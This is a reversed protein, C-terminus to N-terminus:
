PHFADAGHLERLMKRYSIAAADPFRIHLEEKIDTPIEEPRQTEVVVRDQEMITDFGSTFREDPVDLSHNRATYVYIKTTKATVPTSLFSLLTVDGLQSNAGESWTGGKGTAIVSKRDHVIFPFDLEYDRRLRTDDYVYRLGRPTRHVEYPKIVPGDALETYGMHVFNFHSFDMANEVVRGASTKWFYQNVYCVRFDPRNWADEPWEPFPQVPEALAVWVLGYAERAPYAIARAKQPISAGEPLSPIHVCAGTRDYTWGHYACVIKGDRVTGGSLAAGRHICLDKFAAVGSEDRFVVLKEDLLVFQRPQATVEDSTAVPHWFNALSLVSM